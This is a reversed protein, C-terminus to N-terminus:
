SYKQASMWQLLPFVGLNGSIEGLDGLDGLDGLGFIVGLRLDCVLKRVWSEEGLEGPRGFAM